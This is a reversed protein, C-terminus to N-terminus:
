DLRASESGQLKLWRTEWWLRILFVGILLAGLHTRLLNRILERFRDSKNQKIEAKLKEQRQKITQILVEKIKGSQSTTKLELSQRIRQLQPAPIEQTKLTQELNTLQEQRAIKEQIISVNQQHIRQTNLLGLPILLIFLAGSLLVLKRLNRLVIIELYWLERNNPLFILLLALLILWAQNVMQTFAQMEWNPNLLDPPYLILVYDLTSILLLLYGFWNLLSLFGSKDKITYSFKKFLISNRRLPFNRKSAQNSHQKM